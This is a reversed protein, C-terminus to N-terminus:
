HQRGKLEEETWGTCGSHTAELRALVRTPDRRAIKLFDIVQPIVKGPGADHIRSALDKLGPIFRDHGIRVLPGSNVDRIGMAELVIMGAGGKAYRVYRRRVDETVEGADNSLWTVMAPLWVRNPVTVGNMTLPSFLTSESPAPLPPTEGLPAERPHIPPPNM